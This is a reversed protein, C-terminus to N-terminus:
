TKNVFCDIKKLNTERGIRFWASVDELKVAAFDRKASFGTSRAINTSIFTAEGKVTRIDRYKCNVQKSYTGHISYKKPKQQKQRV